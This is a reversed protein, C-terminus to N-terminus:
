GAQGVRGRQARLVGVPVAIPELAADLLETAEPIADWDVGGESDAPWMIDVVPSIYRYRKLKVDDRGEPTWEIRGWVATDRVELEEIWGAAPNRSSEWNRHTKHEWDISLARRLEPTENYRDVITQPDRRTPCFFVPNPTAIAIEAGQQWVATGEIYPLIQFGWGARQQAGIAPSGGIYTPM